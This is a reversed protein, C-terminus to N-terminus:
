SVRTWAGRPRRVVSFAGPRGGDNIWEDIWREAQKRSMGALWLYGQPAKSPMDPNPYRWIGYEFEDDTVLVDSM